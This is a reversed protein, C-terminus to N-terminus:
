IALRQELPPYRRGTEQLLCLLTFSAVLNVSSLKMHFRVM